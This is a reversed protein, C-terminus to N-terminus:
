LPSSRSTTRSGRRFFRWRGAGRSCGARARSRRGTTFSSISETRARYVPISDFTRVLLGVVPMRFLPAKALFSIPRPSFCLLLVPDVLANPHNVVFIAPGTEPVREAGEVEIRRFFIRLAQAFLARLLSRM